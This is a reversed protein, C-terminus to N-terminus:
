DPSRDDTNLMPFAKRKEELFLHEVVIRVYAWEIRRRIFSDPSM